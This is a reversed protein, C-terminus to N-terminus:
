KLNEDVFSLGRLTRVAEDIGKIEFTLKRFTLIIANREHSDIYKKLVRISYNVNDYTLHSKFDELFYDINLIDPYKWNRRSLDHKLREM